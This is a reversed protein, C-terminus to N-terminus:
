NIWKKRLDEIDNKYFHKTFKSKLINDVYEETLKSEKMKKYIESYHKLGGINYNSIKFSDLKLFKSIVKEKEHNDLEQKILLLKINNKKYIKYGIKPFTSEYVDISFHKKLNLDFWETTFDHNFYNYFINKLSQVDNFNKSRDILNFNPMSNKLNYTNLLTEYDLKNPIILHFMIHFFSSINRSIPDRILSIIKIPKTPNSYYIKYFSKSFKHQDPFSQSKLLFFNYQNNLSKHISTSGTKGMVYLFLLNGSNYDRLLKYNGIIKKLYNIPIKYFKHM